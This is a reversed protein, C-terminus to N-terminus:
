WSSCASLRALEGEMVTTHLWNISSERDGSTVCDAFVIPLSSLPPGVWQGNSQPWSFGSLLCGAARERCNNWNLCYTWPRWGWRQQNVIAWNQLTANDLVQKGGHGVWGQPFQLLPRLLASGFWFTLCLPEGSFGSLSRKYIFVDLPNITLLLSCPVWVRSAQCLELYSTKWCSHDCTHSLPPLSAQSPEFTRNLFTGNEEGQCEKMHSTNFKSGHKAIVLAVTHHSYTIIMM